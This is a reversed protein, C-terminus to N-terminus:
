FDTMEFSCDTLCHKWLHLILSRLDPPNEVNRIGIPIRDHFIAGCVGMAGQLIRIRDFLDPDFKIRIQFGLM